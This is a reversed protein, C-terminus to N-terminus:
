QLRSFVLPFLERLLDHFPLFKDRQDTEPVSVTDFRVMRSLKEAYEEARRDAPPAKYSATKSKLCLARLLAALLAALLLGALILLATIM